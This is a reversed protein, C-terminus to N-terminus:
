GQQPSDVPVNDILRTKGMTAAAILRMRGAPSHLPELSAEDVLAVYDIPAFGADNLARRADQIAGNVPQGQEISDAAQELAKSLTTARIREDPSLYANRSSLALGDGDRMTPVAVIEAGMDLDAVMRRIVALQQFDKEGFLAVEPRVANLLKAVVTTVGDFHGPRAEGEWRTTLGAVSVRTSFGAPYMQEPTPAWLLDCGAQELAKADEKEQRPYRDLDEGEGFQMPNVFITAVVRDAQRKAEAVLSLHGPHLAGMTPVLAVRKGGARLAVLASGLQRQDRITQVASEGGTLEREPGRKEARYPDFELPRAHALRM